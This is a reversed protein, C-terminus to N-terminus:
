PTVLTFLDPPVVGDAPIPLWGFNSGDEVYWNSCSITTPGPTFFCVDVSDERVGAIVGALPGSSPNVQCLWVMQGIFPNM